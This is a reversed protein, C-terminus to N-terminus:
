WFCIIIFVNDFRPVFCLLVWTFWTTWRDIKAAPWDLVLTLLQRVSRLCAYSVISTLDTLGLQKKKVLPLCSPNSVVHLALLIPSSSRALRFLLPTSLTVVTSLLDLLMTNGYQILLDWLVMTTDRLSVVTRKDKWMITNEVVNCTVIWHVMTCCVLTSLTGDSMTRWQRRRPCGKLKQWSRTRRRM